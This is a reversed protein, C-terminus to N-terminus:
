RIFGVTLVSKYKKYMSKCIQDHMYIYTNEFFAIYQCKWRKDMSSLKSIGQINGNKLCLDTDFHVQNLNGCM